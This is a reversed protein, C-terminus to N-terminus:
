GGTVGASRWLPSDPPLADLRRNTYDYGAQVARDFAKWNLMDIEALSVCLRRLVLRVKSSALRCMMGIISVASELPM